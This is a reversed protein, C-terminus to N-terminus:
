RWFVQWDCLCQFSFRFKGYFNIYLLLSHVTLLVEPVIDQLSDMLQMLASAANESAVDNSETLNTLGDASESNSLTAAAATLLNSQVLWHPMPPEPDM